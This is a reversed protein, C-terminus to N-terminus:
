KNNLYKYIKRLLNASLITRFRGLNIFIALFFDENNGGIEYEPMDTPLQGKTKDIFAKSFEIKEETALTDIFEDTPGNYIVPRPTYVYPEVQPEAEEEPVFTAPISHINLQEGSETQTVPIEAEPLTESIPQNEPADGAEAYFQEPDIDAMELQQAEAVQRELDAERQAAARKKQSPVLALRIIDLELGVSIFLMAFYICIGVVVPDIIICVLMIITLVLAIANRVVGLIKGSTHPTIYGEEDCKDGCMLGVFDAAMNIVLLIFLAVTCVNIINVAMRYDGSVVAQGNVFSKIVEIGSMSEFLGDGVRITRLINSWASDAGMSALLMDIVDDVAFMAFMFALYSLLFLFMKITGYSGKEYICQIFLAILVVISVIKINLFGTITTYLGIDWASFFTLLAFVILAAGEVVYASVLSTKTTKKGALVPILMIVALVTVVLYLVLMLAPFNFGFSEYNMFEPLTTSGITTNFVASLLAPIYMFLMMNGINLGQGYGFAPIFWGAILLVTVIAYTVVVALKIPKKNESNTM